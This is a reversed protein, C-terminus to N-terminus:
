QGAPVDIVFNVVDRVADDDKGKVVLTRLATDGEWRLRSGRLSGAHAPTEVKDVVIFTQVNKGGGDAVKAEYALHKSDPSFSMTDPVVGQYAKGEVNNLIVFTDKERSGVYALQRGDPSFLLNAVTLYGVGESNDVVCYTRDGRRALYALRKSDPSFQVLRIEDYEKGEIGDIVVVFKRNKVAVYAVRKSDPSFILTGAVLTEYSRQEEGDVVYFLEGKKEKDGEPPKRGALYGIRKSDPSFRITDGFLMDHSKLEKGDVVISTLKEDKRSTYATRASDPSFFLRGVGTTEPQEQGDIVVAYKTDKGEGRLGVYSHRKSDPSFTFSNGAVRDYEKTPVNNILFFEKKLASVAYAWTKGDATFTLNGVRDFEKGEEGNIVVVPNAGAKTRAYFAFGNGGPIAALGSNIIEHYSKSEKGGVVAFVGKDGQVVYAPTTSDASWTVSNAVIWPYEAQPKGDVEVIYKEAKKGDAGTVESRVLVAIHNGDPSISLSRAQDKPLKGVPTETAKLGSAAPADAARAVPHFPPTHTLFAVAGALAMARLLKKM